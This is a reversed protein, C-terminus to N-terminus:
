LEGESWNNSKRLNEEATLIQLNTHVHLGSVNKGHLPAIHDVHHQIGTERTLRKAEEYVAELILETFM